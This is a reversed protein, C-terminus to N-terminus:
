FSPLAPSTLKKDRHQMSVIIKESFKFYRGVLFGGLALKFKRNLPNLSAQWLRSQGWLVNLRGGGSSQSFM